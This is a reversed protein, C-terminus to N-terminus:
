LSVTKSSLFRYSNKLYIFLTIWFFVLLSLVQQLSDSQIEQFLLDALSM